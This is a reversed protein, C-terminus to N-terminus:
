SILYSLSKKLKVLDSKDLKGITKQIRQIGVTEIYWCLLLSPKSLNNTSSERVVFETKPSYIKAQSTFPIITIFRSNIQSFAIVSPRFRKLEAGSAPHMKVLVIDGAKYM